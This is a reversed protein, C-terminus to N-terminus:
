QRITIGSARSVTLDCFELFQFPDRWPMREKLSDPAVCVDDREVSKGLACRKVRELVLIRGSDVEVAGADDIPEALDNVLPQKSNLKSLIACRAKLLWAEESVEGGCIRWGLERAHCRNGFRDGPKM